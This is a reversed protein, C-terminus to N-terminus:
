YNKKDHFCAKFDSIEKDTYSVAPVRIGEVGNEEFEKKCRERREEAEDLNIYFFKM